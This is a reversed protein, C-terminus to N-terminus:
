NHKNVKQSKRNHILDLGPLLTSNKYDPLFPQKPEVQMKTQRPIIILAKNEHSWLILELPAHFEKSIYRSTSLM